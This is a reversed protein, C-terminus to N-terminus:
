MLTDQSDPHSNLAVVRHLHQVAFWCQTKFEKGSDKEEIM